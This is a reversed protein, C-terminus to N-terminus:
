VIEVLNPVQFSLRRREFRVPRQGQTHAFIDSPYPPTGNLTM